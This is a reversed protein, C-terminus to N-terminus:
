KAQWQVGKNVLCFAKQEVGKMPTKPGTQLCTGLCPGGPGIWRSSVSSKCLLGNAFGNTCRFRLGDETM